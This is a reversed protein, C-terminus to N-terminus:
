AAIDMNEDVKNHPENTADNSGFYRKRSALLLAGYREILSGIVIASIGLIAVAMWNDFDIVNWVSVIHHLLHPLLLVVAISTLVKHQHFWAYVAIASTAIGSFLLEIGFEGGSILGLVSAVGLLLLGSFIVLSKRSFTDTATRKLELMMAAFMTFLVPVHYASLFGPLSLTVALNASVFAIPVAILYLCKSLTSSADIKEVSIRVVAYLISSLTLTTYLDVDYLITSRAVMLLPPIFLLLRAFQGEFTNQKPQAPTLRNLVWWLVVALLGAMLCVWISERIPVLLCLSSALGLTGLLKANSRAMVAFGFYTVPLLVVAAVLMAFGMASFGAIQWGVMSPYIVNQIDLPILTYLMAGLVAFNVPVSILSLGFFVRAGKNDNLLYSVLFGGATLVVTQGLLTLFRQLDNNVDIGQMLFLSMAAVVGLAGGIRLLQAFTAQRRLEILARAIRGSRNNTSSNEMGTQAQFVAIQTTEDITNNM